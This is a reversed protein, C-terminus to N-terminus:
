SIWSHEELKFLQPESDTYVLLVFSLDTILQESSEQADLVRELVKHTNVWETKVLFLM